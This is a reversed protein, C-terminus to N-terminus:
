GDRKGHEESGSLDTARQRGTRKRDSRHTQPLDHCEENQSPETSSAEVAPSTKQNKSFFKMSRSVSVSAPSSFRMMGVFGDPDDSKKRKQNPNVAKYYAVADRWIQGNELNRAAKPPTPLPVAVVIPKCRLGPDAVRSPLSPPLPLPRDFEGPRPEFFQAGMDFGHGRQSQVRALPDKFRHLKPQVIYPEAHIPDVAYPLNEGIATIRRKRTTPGFAHTAQKGDMAYVPASSSLGNGRIFAERPGMAGQRINSGRGMGAITEVRDHCGEKLPVPELLKMISEQGGANDSPDFSLKEAADHVSEHMSLERASDVILPPRPADEFRFGSPPLEEVTTVASTQCCQSFCSLTHGDCQCTPLEWVEAWEGSDTDEDGPCLSPRTAM